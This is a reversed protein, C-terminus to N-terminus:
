DIILRKEPVGVEVPGKSGRSGKRPRTLKNPGPNEPTNPRSSHHSRLPTVPLVPTPARDKHLPSSGESSTSVRVDENEIMRTADDEGYLVPDIEKFRSKPSSLHEDAEKKSMKSERSNKRSRSWPFVSKKTKEKTAPTGPYASQDGASPIPISESRVRAPVVKLPPSKKIPPAKPLPLPVEKDSPLTGPEHIIVWPGGPSLNDSNRITMPVEATARHRSKALVEAAAAETTLRRPRTNSTVEKDKDKPSDDDEPHLDMVPPPIYDLSAQESKRQGPDEKSLEPDIKEPSRALGPSDTEADMRELIPEITTTSKMPGKKTWTTQALKGVTSDHTSSIDNSAVWTDETLRTDRFLAPPLLGPNFDDDDDPPDPMFDGQTSWSKVRNLPRSQSPPEADMPSPPQIHFAASPVTRYVQERSPSTYLIQPASPEHDVSYPQMPRSDPPYSPFEPPLNQQQRPSPSPGHNRSRSDDRPDRPFPSTNKQEAYERYRPDKPSPSIDGKRRATDLTANRALTVPAAPPPYNNPQSTSRAHGKKSEPKPSLKSKRSVEELLLSYSQTDSNDVPENEISTKNFREVPSPDPQQKPAPASFIWFDQVRSRKALSISTLLSLGHADMAKLIELINSLSDLDFTSPQLFSYGKLKFTYTGESDRKESVVGHPWSSRVVQLIAPTFSLPPSVVRLQTMSIFSIGFTVRREPQPVSAPILARAFTLTLKDLYIRGYDISSVLYFQQSLIADFIALLIQEQRVSRGSFPKGALVIEVVSIDSNERYHRIEEKLVKRVAIVVNDPFNALRLIESGNFSLLGFNHPVIPARIFEQRPQFTSKSAPSLTAQASSPSQSSPTPSAM